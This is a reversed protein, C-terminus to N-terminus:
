TRAGRGEIGRGEILARQAGLASAALDMFARVRATRRLDEHTLLWLTAGLGPRPRGVRVLDPHSDGTYCPLAAVGIGAAAAAAMAVFSDTRLAVRSPALRRVWKTSPLHGLSDDPVIWVHDREERVGAGELYTSAAYVAFTFDAIRRGVLGEPPETTPRVAVDAERRSLSVIAKEVALELTVGPYAAAFRAMVPPMLTTAITDVTTVRLTGELRLDRGTLRRDLDAVQEDIGAAVRELEEGAATPVYGGKHRDFLRVGLRAEIAGLRRFVTAHNVGLARAAGSLSRARAISLVLRLDDWDARGRSAQASM